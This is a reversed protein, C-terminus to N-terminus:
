KKSLIFYQVRLRLANTSAVKCILTFAIDFSEAHSISISFQLRDRPTFLSLNLDHASLEERGRKHDHPFNCDVESLMLCILSLETMTIENKLDHKM